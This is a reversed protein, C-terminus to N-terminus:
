LPCGERSPFRHFCWISKSLLHFGTESSENQQIVHVPMPSNRAVVVVAILVTLYAGLVQQQPYAALDPLRLDLLLQLQLLLLLDMPLRMSAALVVIWCICCPASAM